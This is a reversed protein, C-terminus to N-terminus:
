TFCTRAVTRGLRPPTAAGPSVEGHALAEVGFLEAALPALRPSAVGQHGALLV